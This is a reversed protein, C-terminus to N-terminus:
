PPVNESPGLLLIFVPPHVQTDPNFALNDVSTTLNMLTKLPSVSAPLMPHGGELDLIKQSCEVVWGNVETIRRLQRATYKGIRYPIQFHEGGGGKLM